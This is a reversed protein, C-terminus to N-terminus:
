IAEIRRDLPLAAARLAAAALACALVVLAVDRGQSAAAASADYDARALLDAGYAVKVAIAAPVRAAPLGTLLGRPQALLVYLM